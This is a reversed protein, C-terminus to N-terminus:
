QLSSDCPEMCSQIFRSLASLDPITIDRRGHDNFAIVGCRALKALARSVSELRIGLYAGMESRSMHVNIEDTRRGREALSKAWMLLFDAVRAEASLTGISMAIERNRALQSSIAALVHHLLSPDKAAAQMLSEYRVAWVEGIDLAVATCSHQGTPIGDFGLWDGDFVFDSSRERGDPSLSVMKFIGSNILYLTDFPRGATYLQDRTRILRKAVPVHQVILDLSARWNARHEPLDVGKGQYAFHTDPVEAHSMAPTSWDMHHSVPAASNAFKALPSAYPPANM